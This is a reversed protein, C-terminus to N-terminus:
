LLQVFPAVAPVGLGNLLFLLYHGPPAVNGDPPAQCTVSAATRGTIALGVYRQSHNFSHTVAGPRLLAATTIAAADPTQVTFPQGYAIAAPAATLTPRPGRFLYPPSFIEVRYESYKFPDPNNEKDKGASLV